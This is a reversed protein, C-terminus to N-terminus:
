GRARARLYVNLLWGAIVGAFFVFFPVARLPWFFFHVLAREDVGKQVDVAVLINQVCLVILLVAIVVRVWFGFTGPVRVGKAEAPKAEGGGSGGAEENPVGQALPNLSM